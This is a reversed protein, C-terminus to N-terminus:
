VVTGSLRLITRSLRLITRSLRLVAKAVKTSYDVKYIRIVEGLDRSHTVIIYIVGRQYVGIFCKDAKKVSEIGIDGPYNPITKLVWLVKIYYSSKLLEKYICGEQSINFVAKLSDVTFPL